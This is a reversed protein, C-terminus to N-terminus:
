SFENRAMVIQLLTSEDYYIEDCVIILRHTGQEFVVVLIESNERRKVHSMEHTTRFFDSAANFNGDNKEYTTRANLM